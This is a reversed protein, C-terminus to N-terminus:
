RGNDLQELVARMASLDDRARAEYRQLLNPNKADPVWCNFISEGTEASTDLRLMTAGRQLLQAKLQEYGPASGTGTLTVPTAKPELKVPEEKGAPQPGQLTIPGTAGRGQWAAGPGTPATPPGIRLERSPDLSRLGAGSALAANSGTSSPASLPPV